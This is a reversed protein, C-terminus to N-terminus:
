GIHVRSELSAGAAAKVVQGIPRHRLGLRDLDANVAAADGPAVVLVFGIIQAAEVFGKIPAKMLAVLGQPASEVYHFSAPDILQKGNVLHTDYKGGPIFWTALAILALIAFLLVFTNPIRLRM